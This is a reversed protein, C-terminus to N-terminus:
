NFYKYNVKESFIDDVKSNEFVASVDNIMSTPSLLSCECTFGTKGNELEVEVRVCDQDGWTTEKKSVCVAKSPKKTKKPLHEGDKNSVAEGDVYEYEYEYEYEWEFEYSVKENKM